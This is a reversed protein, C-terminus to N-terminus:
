QDDEHVDQETLKLSAKNCWAILQQEEQKEGHSDSDFTPEENTLESGNFSDDKYVINYNKDLAIPNSFTTGAAISDNSNETNMNVIYDYMEQEIQHETLLKHENDHMNMMCHEDCHMDNEYIDDHNDSCEIVTM